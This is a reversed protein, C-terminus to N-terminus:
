PKKARTVGTIKVFQEPSLVFGIGEIMFSPFNKQVEKGEVLLEDGLSFNHQLHDSMSLVVIVQICLLGNEEYWDSFLFDHIEVRKKDKTLLILDHTPLRRLKRVPDSM